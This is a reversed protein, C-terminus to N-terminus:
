NGNPNGSTDEINEMKGEEARVKRGNAFGGTSEFSGVLKYFCTEQFVFGKCEM